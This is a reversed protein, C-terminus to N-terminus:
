MGTEGKEHALRLDMLSYPETVLIERCLPVDNDTSWVMKHRVLSTTSAILVFM